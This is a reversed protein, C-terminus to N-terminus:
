QKPFGPEQKIRIIQQTYRRSHASVLRIFQYADIQGGQLQVFHNRLDETTSKAYRIHDTRIAKFASVAEPASKWKAKGSPQPFVMAKGSTNNMLNMLDEDTMGHRQGTLAPEDMAKGLIKWLNKEAMALDAIAEKISRHTQTSRYTLQTKSLGKVSQLFDDKSEKLESVALKRETKTLTSNKLTGALGTIVLLTLLFRGKTRQLM